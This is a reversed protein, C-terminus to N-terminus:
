FDRKHDVYSNITVSAIFWAKKLNRLDYKAAGLAFAGGVNSTPYIFPESIHIRFPGVRGDLIDFASFKLIKVRRRSRNIFAGPVLKFLNDLRKVELYYEKHIM